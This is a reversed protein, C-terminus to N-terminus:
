LDNQALDGMIKQLANVKRAEAMKDNLNEHCHPYKWFARDISVPKTLTFTSGDIKFSGKILNRSGIRFTVRGSKYGEPDVDHIEPINDVLSEASVKHPLTDFSVHTKTEGAYSLGGRSSCLIELNRDTEKDGFHKATPFATLFLVVAGAMVYGFISRRRERMPKEAAFAKKRKRRERRRESWTQKKVTSYKFKM